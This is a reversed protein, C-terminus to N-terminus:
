FRGEIENIANKYEEISFDIVMYQGNWDGVWEMMYVLCDEASITPNYEKVLKAMKIVDKRTNRCECLREYCGYDTKKLKDRWDNNWNM